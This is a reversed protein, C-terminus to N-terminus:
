DLWFYLPEQCTATEPVSLDKHQPLLRDTFTKPNTIHDLIGLLDDHTCIALWASENNSSGYTTEHDGYRTSSVEIWSIKSDIIEIKPPYRFLVPRIATIRYPSQSYLLILQRECPRVICLDSTLPIEVHSTNSPKSVNVVMSNQPWIM